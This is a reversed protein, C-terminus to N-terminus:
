VATLQSKIPCINMIKNGEKRSGDNLMLGTTAKQLSPLYRQFTSSTDFISRHTFFANAEFHM